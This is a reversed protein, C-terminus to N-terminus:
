KNYYGKTPTDIPRRAVNYDEPGRPKIRAEDRYEPELSRVIRRAENVSIREQTAKLYTVREWFHHCNPGGKWNWIDYTDAGNIGFGPNVAQFEMDQIDEKRYVLAANVMLRCFDRSEGGKEGRDVTPPAYRYRVLFLSTDEESDLDPNAEGVDALFVRADLQEELDYDVKRSDIEIWEEADVVEGRAILTNAVNTEVAKLTVEPKTPKEEQFPNVNEFEITAVKNSAYALKNIASLILGQYGQIVEKHFIQWAEYLETSGGLQGETKVGFLMPSTVAHGVFIMSQAQDALLSYMADANNTQIPTVIPAFEKDDVFHVWFNGANRSGALKDEMQQVIRQEEADTLSGSPFVVSFSPMLGNQINNLHFEAMHAELAVYSLAHIYDPECYYEAGATYSYVPLIQRPYEDKTAINFVEYVDPETARNNWDPKFLYQDIEGEENAETARVMQYPLHYIKVIEERDIGWRIDLYGGGFIKLDISLKRVADNAETKALWNDVESEAGYLGGAYIMKGIQRILAGHTPSKKSLELLHDAYKDDEGLTVVDAKITYSLSPLDYNALQLQHTGGVLKKNKM